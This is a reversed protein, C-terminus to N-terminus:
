LGEAAFGVAMLGAVRRRGGGVVAMERCWRAM